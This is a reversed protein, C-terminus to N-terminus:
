KHERAKQIYSDLKGIVERNTTHSKAMELQQIAEPYRNMHTYTLALQVYSDLDEPDLLTLGRYAEAAEPYQKRVYYLRALNRHAEAYKPNLAIAGKVEQAAMEFYRDAESKQGNPIHRYFAENYYDLGKHNREAEKTAQPRADQLGTLNFSLFFVVALCRFHPKLM